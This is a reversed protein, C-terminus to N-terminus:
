APSTSTPTPTSSAGRRARGGRRADGPAVIVCGAQHAALQARYRPNALFRLDTPTPARWRRRHARDRLQPDGLLEGGLAGVIDDIRLACPRLRM